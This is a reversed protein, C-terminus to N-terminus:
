TGAELDRLAQRGFFFFPGFFTEGKKTGLTRLLRAAPWMEIFYPNLTM